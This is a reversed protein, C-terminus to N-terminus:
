YVIPLGVDVIFLSMFPAGGKLFHSYKGNLPPEIVTYTKGDITVTTTWVPLTSTYTTGYGTVLETWVSRPSSTSDETRTASITKVYNSPTMSSSAKAHRASTAIGKGTDRAAGACVLVLGLFSALTTLNIIRM